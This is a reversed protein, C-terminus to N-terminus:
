KGGEDSLSNTGRNVPKTGLARCVDEVWRKADQFPCLWTRHCGRSTLEMHMAPARLANSSHIVIPLKPLKKALFPTIEEGSGLEENALVGCDLDCDLSVLDVHEGNAALWEEMQRVNDFFRIDCDAISSLAAARMAVTRWADDELVAILPM